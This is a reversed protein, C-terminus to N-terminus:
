NVSFGLFQAGSARRQVSWDAAKDSSKSLFLDVSLAPKGSCHDLPSFVSAFQDSFKFKKEVSIKHQFSCPLRHGRRTSHARAHL